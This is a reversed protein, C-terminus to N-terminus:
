SNPNLWSFQTINPRIEDNSIAKEIIFILNEEKNQTNIKKNHKAALRARIPQL